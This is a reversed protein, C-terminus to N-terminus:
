CHNRQTASPFASANLRRGAKPEYSGECDVSIVYEVRRAYMQGGRKTATNSSCTHTTTNPCM